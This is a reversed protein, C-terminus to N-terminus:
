FYCAISTSIDYEFKWEPIYEEMGIRSKVKFGEVPM